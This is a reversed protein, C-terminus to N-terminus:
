LSSERVKAKAPRADERLWKEWAVTRLPTDEYTNKAHKGIDRWNHCPVDDHATKEKQLTAMSIESRETLGASNNGYM